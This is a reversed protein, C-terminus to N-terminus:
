LTSEVLLLYVQTTLTKQEVLATSEVIATEGIVTTAQLILHFFYIKTSKKVPGVQYKVLYKPIWCSNANVLTPM